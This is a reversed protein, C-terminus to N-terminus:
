EEYRLLTLQNVGTIVTLFGGERARYVPGALVPISKSTWTKGGDSTRGNKKSSIRADSGALVIQIYIRSFTGAMNGGFDNHISKQLGTPIFYNHIGFCMSMFGAPTDDTKFCTM